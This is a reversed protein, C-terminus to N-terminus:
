EHWSSRRPMASRPREYEYEYDDLLGIVRDLVDIEEEMKLIQRKNGAIMDGVVNSFIDPSDGKHHMRLKLKECGDLAKDLAAMDTKMKTKGQVLSRRIQDVFDKNTSAKPAMQQFLMGLREYAVQQPGQEVGIDDGRDYKARKEPDSLVSFAEQLEQFQEIGGNVRDPHLTMAKKKYARTIEAKNADRPVDLIDYYNQDAM